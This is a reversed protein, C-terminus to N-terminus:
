LPSQHPSLHHHRQSLLSKPNLVPVHKHQLINVRIKILIQQHVGDEEEGVSESLYYGLISIIGEIM